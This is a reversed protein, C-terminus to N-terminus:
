AATLRMENAKRRMYALPLNFRRQTAGLPEQVERRRRIDWWVVERMPFWRPGFRPNAWAKRIFADCRRVRRAKLTKVAHEAMLDEVPRNTGFCIQMAHRQIGELQEEQGRNLMAHYVASCYEVSSRVYCCYLRFLQRGRIGASRLHYLMWKKRKHMETISDVHPGANPTSGFVFGVLKMWDVSEIPAEDDASIVASTVCGNNPAIVLLQTKKANIRMGIDEARGSLRDFDRELELSKFM